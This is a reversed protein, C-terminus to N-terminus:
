RRPSNQDLDLRKPSKWQPPEWRPPVDRDANNLGGTEFDGWSTSSTTRGYPLHLARAKGAEVGATAVRALLTPFQRHRTKYPLRPVEVAADHQEQHQHM